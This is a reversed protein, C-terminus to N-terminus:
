QGAGTESITPIGQITSSIGNFYIGPLMMPSTGGNSQATPDPVPDPVIYITFTATAVTDDGSIIDIRCNLDGSASTMESTLTFDVLGTVTITATEEIQVAHNGAKIKATVGTITRLDLWVGNQYISVEFVTGHENQHATLKNLNKREVIDVIVSRKNISEM